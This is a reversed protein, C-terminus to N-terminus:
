SRATTVIWSPSTAPPWVSRADIAVFRIRRDRQRQLARDGLDMVCATALSVIAVARAIPLGVGPKQAKQQPYQAQNKPTDPMTFTFGDILKAHHKGKWLWSEDSAQELEEAM